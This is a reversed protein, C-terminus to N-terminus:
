KRKPTPTGDPAFITAKVVDGNMLMALGLSIYAVHVNADLCVIDQKKRLLKKMQNLTVGRAPMGLINTKIPLKNPVNKHVNQLDTKFKAFTSTQVPYKKALFKYKKALFKQLVNSNGSVYKDQADTHEWGNRFIGIQAGSPHDFVTTGKPAIVRGRGRTPAPTFGYQKLMQLTLLQKADLMTADSQATM